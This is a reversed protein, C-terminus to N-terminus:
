KGIAEITKVAPLLDEPMELIIGFRKGRQFVYEGYYRAPLRKVVIGDADLLEFSIFARRRDRFAPAWDAGDENSTLDRVLEVVWFATTTKADYRTAVVKLPASDLAKIKWDITKPLPASKDDQARATLTPVVSLSAAIAIAIPIFRPAARM